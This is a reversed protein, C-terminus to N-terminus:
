RLRKRPAEEIAYRIWKSYNGKAYQAALWKLKHALKKSCRFQIKVEDDELKPM